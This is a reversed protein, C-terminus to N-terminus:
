AALESPPRALSRRVFERMHDLEPYDPPADRDIRFCALRLTDNFLPADTRGADDLLEAGLMSFLRDQGNGTGVAAIIAGANLEAALAWLGGFLLRPNFGNRYGPHVVLRSAEACAARDIGTRRLNEKVNERGFAADALSPGTGPDPPSLRATGVPMADDHLVLHYCHFDLPDADGFAGGGPGFAPRSGGDHLVQSRLSRVWILWEPAPGNTGRPPPMLRCTLGPTAPRDDFSLAAAVCDDIFKGYIELAAVGTGVLPDLCDPQALLLDAIQKRNFRTHAGDLAVHERLFSYGGDAGSRAAAALLAPGHRVSLAEIEYELAIQAFPADGAITEEHLERYREISAPLNRRSLAVPDIKEQHDANWSDALAWLDGIMMRHHGAEHQAHRVLADGLTAHGTDRCREGARRIWDEVPCTMSVGYAAYHLLFLRLLDPPVTGINGLLAVSPRAAFRNRHPKLRREYAVIADRATLFTDTM